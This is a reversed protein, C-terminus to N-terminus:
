PNLIASSKRQRLVGFMRRIKEAFVPHSAIGAGDLKSGRLPVEISAEKLFRGGMIRLTETLSAQAYEGPPTANLLAFPKETMEMGGVLWDLANKMVGPVGHAYEPSSVLLADCANVAARWQLAVPPLGAEEIDPNFHPLDDLPPRITITWGTPALLQVAELLRLNSSGARLSGSVALLNM